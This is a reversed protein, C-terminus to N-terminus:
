CWMWDTGFCKLNDDFMQIQEAYFLYMCGTRM